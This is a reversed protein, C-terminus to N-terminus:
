MQKLPSRRVDFDLRNNSLRWSVNSNPFLEFRRSVLQNGDVTEAVMMYASEFYPEDFRLTRTRGPSVTGLTSRTGSESVIRVTVPTTPTLDNRVEILVVAEGLGEPTPEDRDGSGPACAACVLSLVVPLVIQAHDSM